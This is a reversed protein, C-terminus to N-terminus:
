VVFHSVQRWLLWPFSNAVVASVVIHATPIIVGIVVAVYTRLPMMSYIIFIVFMVEWVGDTPNYIPPSQAHGFDVPFASAAMCLLFVLLLYSIVTFHTEKMYRTNVYVFIIVFVVCQVALYIGRVSLDGVFVFKLVALTATLLTLICLMYGVSALQLKFVYRRYLRELEDNGFQYRSFARKLRHDGAPKSLM